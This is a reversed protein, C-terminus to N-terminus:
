LAASSAIDEPTRGLFQSQVEYLDHINFKPCAASLIRGIEVLFESYLDDLRDDDREVTGNGMQTLMERLHNRAKMFSADHVAIGLVRQIELDNLEGKKFSRRKFAM